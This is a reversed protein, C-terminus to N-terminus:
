EEYDFDINICRVKKPDILNFRDKKLDLKWAKLTKNLYEKDEYESFAFIQKADADDIKECEILDTLAENSNSIYHVTDLLKYKAEKSISNVIEELALVHINSNKLYTLGKNSQESNIASSSIIEFDKFMKLDTLKRYETKSSKNQNERNLNSKATDQYIKKDIDKNPQLSKQSIETSDKVTFDKGTSEM